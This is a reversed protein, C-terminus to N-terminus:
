VGQALLHVDGGGLDPLVEAAESLEALLAVAVIHLLEPRLDAVDQAHVVVVM